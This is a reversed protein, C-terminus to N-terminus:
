AEDCKALDKFPCAAIIPLSFRLVFFGSSIDEYSNETM